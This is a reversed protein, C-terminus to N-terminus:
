LVASELLTIRQYITNLEARIGVPLTLKNVVHGFSMGYLVPIDLDSLRDNLVEMLSFSNAPDTERPECDRFVGMVIGAAHEFKGASRMQTLMRDIRYPEERVEEIFLIKGTTDVDYPTGILSVMISLNGGLLEGETIGSRITTLAYEPGTQEGSVPHLTVKQEPEILVKRLNEVTYENFTSTGVFGHYSVLGAQAYLAYSLATIDSYGALVKPNARILDFNLFPLIRTSGYGGRVCIIGKVDPRLFMDEIEKARTRDDGALYGKKKLIHETFVVRFGLTELNEISKTLSEESIFGAPAVLGVTDKERLRPPKILENRGFTNPNHNMALGPVAGVMVAASATTMKNLFTRRRMDVNGMLITQASRESM